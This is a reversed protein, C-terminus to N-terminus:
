AARRLAIARLKARRLAHDAPVGGTWDFGIAEAVKRNFAQQAPVPYHGHLYDKPVAASHERAPGLVSVIAPRLEAFLARLERTRAGTEYGELLADYVSDQYGWCDAFQRTLSLVKQLHPQFIKFKSQERATRWAERAHTRTREMKEVLRAPVKTARDYARRWERINAAAASDPPFGHQECEAIWQGVKNSTFKRHAASGLYALQEARFAVAKSPLYTELDWTLTSTSSTLFAVERARKLLQRYPAFETPMM